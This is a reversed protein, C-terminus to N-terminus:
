TLQLVHRKLPKVGSCYDRAEDYKVGPLEYIKDYLTNNWKNSAKAHRTTPILDYWDSGRWKNGAFWAVWYLIHYEKTKTNFYLYPKLPTLSGTLGGTASRFVQKLEM